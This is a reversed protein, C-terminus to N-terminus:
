RKDYNDVFYDVLAVLWIHHSMEVINYVKSDVWFNINGLRRLPNDADFGSFTIIKLGMEKAQLAANIINRSRGSSSILIALDNADAYFEIAKSLWHEYGYDNALCTILAAENFNVSRLSASKTFDVSVHSAIAASGGNGAIIIKKGVTATNKILDVSQKLLSTDVNKVYDSMIKLYNKFYDMHGRNKM